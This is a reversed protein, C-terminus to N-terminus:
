ENLTLDEKSLGLEQLFTEYDLPKTFDGHREMYMKSLKAVFADEDGKLSEAKLLLAPMLNYQTLGSYISHVMLADPEALRAFAERDVLYFANQLRSANRQWQNTYEQWAYEKGFCEKMYLYASYCALGEGSWPSMGDEATYVSSPGFGWWQHAIEHVALGLGSGGEVNASGPPAKYAGNIFMTEGYMSINESAWGAVIGGDLEMLVLPLGKFDLPGFRRTFYEIVDRLTDAAMTERMLGAKERFYVFQVDLKGVNFKEVNYDGAILWHYQPDPFRYTKCGKRLPALEDLTKGPMFPTLTEAMTVTCEAKSNNHTLYPVPVFQDLFVFNPTIMYCIQQYDRRNRPAGAYRLSLTQSTLPGKLKVHWVSTMFSDDVDKSLAVPQGDLQAELITLGPALLLALDQEKSGGGRLEFDARGELQDDGIFLDAKSKFVYIQSNYEAMVNMSDVNNQMTIQGTKPDIHQEYKLMPGNDIFPQGTFLLIGAAAMAAMLLPLAPHKFSHLFSRLWNLGYRRLSSLGLFFLALSFALWLLRTYTLLRIQSISGSVDSISMVQTSLWPWRFDSNYQRTIDFTILGAMLVFGAELSLTIMYVGATALLTIVLGGCYVLGWVQLFTNLRFLEGMMLATYPLLVAAAAAASLVMVVCLAMVKRVAYGTPTVVSEILTDCHARRSRQMELLTQLTAAFASVMLALKAPQLMLVTAM